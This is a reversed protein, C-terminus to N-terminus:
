LAKVNALALGRMTVIEYTERMTIKIKVDNNGQRILRSMSRNHAMELRIALWENRCENLKM